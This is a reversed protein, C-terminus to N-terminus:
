NSGNSVNKVWLSEQLKKEEFNPGKCLNYNLYVQDLM